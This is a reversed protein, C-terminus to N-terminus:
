RFCGGEAASCDLGGIICYDLLDLYTAIANEHPRVLAIKVGLTLSMTKSYQETVITVGVFTFPLLVISVSESYSSIARPIHVISLPLTTLSLTVTDHVDLCPICLEPTGYYRQKAREGGNMAIRSISLTLIYYM